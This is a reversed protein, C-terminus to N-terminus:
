GWTKRPPSKVELQVCDEITEHWHPVGAPHIWTDGPGAIFSDDGICVKVKGSVLYCISEHDPHAHKPDKMGAKRHVEIMLMERGVMLPKVLVEGKWDTGEIKTVRQVPADRSAIFAYASLPLERMSAKPTDDM